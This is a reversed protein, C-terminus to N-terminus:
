RTLGCETFSMNKMGQAKKSMAPLELSNHIQATHRGHSVNALFSYTVRKTSIPWTALHTKTKGVALEVETRSRRAM